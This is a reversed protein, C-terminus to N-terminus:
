EPSPLDPAPQKQFRNFKGTYWHHRKTDRWKPDRSRIISAAGIGVAYGTLHGMNDSHPRATEALKGMPPSIGYRRITYIEALMFM